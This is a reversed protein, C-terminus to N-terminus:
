INNKDRLHKLFRILEIVGALKIRDFENTYNTEMKDPYLKDLEKILDITKSPLTNMKIGKIKM